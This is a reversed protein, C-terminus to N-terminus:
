PSMVPVRQFFPGWDLSWIQRGKWTARSGLHRKDSIQSSPRQQVPAPLSPGHPGLETRGSGGRSRTFALGTPIPEGGGAALGLPLHRSGEARPGRLSGPCARLMELGDAEERPNKKSRCPSRSGRQNCRQSPRAQLRSGADQAWGPRLSPFGVSALLCWTHLARSGRDVGARQGEWTTM